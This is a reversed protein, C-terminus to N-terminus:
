RDVMPIPIQLEVAILIKKIKSHNQICFFHLWVCQLPEWFVCKHWCMSNWLECNPTSDWAFFDWTLWIDDWWGNAWTLLTWIKKKLYNGWRTSRWVYGLTECVNVCPCNTLKWTVGVTIWMMDMCNSTSSCRWIKSQFIEVLFHSKLSIQSSHM